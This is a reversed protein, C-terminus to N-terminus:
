LIHGHSIAAHWVNRERSGLRYKNIEHGSLLAGAAHAHMEFHIVYRAWTQVLIPLATSTM